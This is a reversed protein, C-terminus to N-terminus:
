AATVIEIICLAPSHPMRRAILIAYSILKNRRVVARKVARRGWCANSRRSQSREAAPADIPMAAAAVLLIVPLNLMM